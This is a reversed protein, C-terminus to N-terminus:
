SASATVRGDEWEVLWSGDHSVHVAGVAVYCRPPLGGEVVGAEGVLEYLERWTWGQIHKAVYEDAYGLRLPIPHIYHLFGNVDDRALALDCRSRAISDQWRAADVADRLRREDEARRGAELAAFIREAGGPAKAEEATFFISTSPEGDNRGTFM